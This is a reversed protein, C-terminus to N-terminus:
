QWRDVGRKASAAGLALLDNILDHTSARRPMSWQVAPTHCMYRVVDPGEDEKDEPMSPEATHLPNRHERYRLNECQKYLSEAGGAVSPHFWIAPKQAIREVDGPTLTPAGMMDRIVSLGGRDAHGLCWRAVSSFFGEALTDYGLKGKDAMVMPLGNKAFTSAYTELTKPDRAWFDSDGVSGCCAEDEGDADLTQKILIPIPTDTRYLQRFFYKDGNKHVAAWACCFPHAMGRDLSRWVAWDASLYQDRPIRRVHYEESLMPWVPRGGRLLDMEMNQRWGGSKRGGYKVSEHDAWAEDHDPNDSWHVPQVAFGNKLRRMPYRLGPLTCEEVGGLRMM